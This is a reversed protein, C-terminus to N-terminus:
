IQEKAIHLYKEHLALVNGQLEALSGTNILLDDAIKLREHEDSQTSLINLAQERSSHDRSMCRAIQLEPLSQVLLVRNLYPYNSKNYLLPIEILCYPAKVKRIHQEIQKRILPHLLQELWLRAQTNNFILQRLHRRNLEGAATLISHGFHTLIEHFAPQHSATLDKAIEDANIVAVGLQAFYSAVTSKGSAINGTLGICYM